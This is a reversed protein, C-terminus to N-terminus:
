IHLLSISSWGNSFNHQFSYIIYMETFIFFLPFIDIIKFCVIFYQGLWGMSFGNISNSQNGVFILLFAVVSGVLPKSQHQLVDTLNNLLNGKSSSWRSSQIVIWYLRRTVIWRLSCRRWRILGRTGIWLWKRRSWVALRLPSNQFM